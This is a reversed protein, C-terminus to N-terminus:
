VFCLGLMYFVVSDELGHSIAKQFYIAAKDFHSKKYYYQGIGYTATAVNSHKELAAEYFHIAQELQNLELLLNDFNIYHLPEDPNNEILQFFARTAEYYKGEQLKNKIHSM